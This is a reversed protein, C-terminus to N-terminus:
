QDYPDEFDASIAAGQPAAQPTDDYPDLYDASSAEGLKFRRNQLYISRSVAYSDASDYLVSDITDSFRGRASLGKGGRAGLAYYSEPDRIWYELPNTFFDVVRGAAHRSTSPGFVPMEVYPGEHVGWTYLTQGFDADTRDPMGLDTAVDILGGLGLTSNVLFRYFDSTLGVGNGQLTSNVMAGPLSLNTSFNNVATELDDPMFASYGTAVPRVLNRDLSKNAQHTKRNSQEYPDLPAGRTVAPDPKHGCAAVIALAALSLALRPCSSRFLRTVPDRELLTRCLTEFRTSLAICGTRCM